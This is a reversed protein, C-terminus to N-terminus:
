SGAYIGGCSRLLVWVQLCSVGLDLCLPRAITLSPCLRAAIDIFFINRNGIDPAQQLLATWVMHILLCWCGGRSGKSFRGRSGPLTSAGPEQGSTAEEESACAVLIDFFAYQEQKEQLAV